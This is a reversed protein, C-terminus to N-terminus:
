DRPSTAALDVVLENWVRPPEFLTGELYSFTHSVLTIRDGGIDSGIVWLRADEPIQSSIERVDEEDLTTDPPQAMAQVGCWGRLLPMLSDSLARASPGTFLVVAEAGLGGCIAEVTAGGDEFEPDLGVPISTLLIPIALLLTVVGRVLSHRGALRAVVLCGFVILAPIVIPLFRRMAWIHDPNISPRFLYTVIAVASLAVFPGQDPDGKSLVRRVGVVLGLLGLGVLPIGLYWVLWHVSLEAYTRLPEVAVGAQEQLGAIAYIDSRTPAEVFPRVLWAYALWLGLGVTVVTALGQRNRRLLSRVPEAPRAGMLRLVLIALAAAGIFEAHDAIYVPSYILGNAMGVGAMLLGAVVAGGLIPTAQDEPSSVDLWTVYAVLGVLVIVGDIRAVTAGGLVLGGLYGFRRSGSGGVVGLLWLGGFVFAMSTLETFPARSFYLFPLTLVVLLTALSGQTEGLMRRAFAFFALVAIGAIVPNVLYMASLGFTSGVLALISPFLHLFQPRLTAPAGVSPFGVSSYVVTEPDVGPVSVEMALTGQRAIWSATAVYTGPDRIGLFHEHPALWGLVIVGTALVIALVTGLSMPGPVATRPALRTLGMTALLGLPWVLWPEMVGLMAAALAVLGIGLLGSLCWVVLTEFVPRSTALGPSPSSETVM